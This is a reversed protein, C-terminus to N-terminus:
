FFNFFIKRQLSWMTSEINDGSPRFLIEAALFREKDLSIVNENPLSYTREMKKENVNKGEENAVFCLREM